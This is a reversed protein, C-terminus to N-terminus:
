SLTRRAPRFGLSKVVERQIRCMEEEDELSVEHDYGLLHLVSHVCLFAAEQEFSHGFEKAQKACRQTNIVIDGLVARRFGHPADLGVFSYQPFSLVDTPADVGRFQKNMGRIGEDDTLTLSIEWRRFYCEHWLTNRIAEEMLHCFKCNMAYDHQENSIYLKSGM